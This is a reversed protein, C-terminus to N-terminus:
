HYVSNNREAVDLAALDSIIASLLDKIETDDTKRRVNYVDSIIDDIRQKLIDM